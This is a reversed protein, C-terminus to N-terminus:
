PGNLYRIVLLDTEDLTGAIPDLNGDLRTLAAGLLFDSRDDTFTLFAFFEAPVGLFVYAFDNAPILPDAFVFVPLNILDTSGGDEEFIALGTDLDGDNSLFLTGTVGNWRVDPLVAVYLMDDRLPQQEVTSFLEFGFWIIDTEQGSFTVSLDIEGSTVDDLDDFWVLQYFDPSNLDKTVISVDPVYPVAPEPAFLLDTDLALTITGASRVTLPNMGDDMTIFICYSGLTVPGTDWVVQTQQATLGSALVTQDATTTINCDVDAYVAYTAVGAPDTANFAITVDSGAIVTRTLPGVTLTPAPIVEVVAVVRPSPPKNAELLVLLITYEGPQVGATQWVYLLEAGNNEVLTALLTQDGTTGPNGDRDLVVRVSAQEDGDNATFRIPVAFGQIVTLDQAPTVIALQAGGGGGGGGCAAALGVILLAFHRM